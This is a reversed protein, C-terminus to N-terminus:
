KSRGFCILDLEECFMALGSYQIPRLFYLSSHVSLSLEQTIHRPNHNPYASSTRAPRSTPPPPSPARAAASGTGTRRGASCPAASPACSSSARPPPRRRRRTEFWAGRMLQVALLPPSSSAALFNKLVPMAPAFHVMGADALALYEPEGARKAFRRVLEQVGICNLPM